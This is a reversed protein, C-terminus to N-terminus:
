QCLERIKDEYIKIVNGRQYNNSVFERGFLGMQYIDKESCECAKELALILSDKDNSKVGFGTKGEILLEKCGPNDNTTIIPTQCALSEILVNSIGEHYFSPSVIFSHECYISRMDNARNLIRIREGYDKRLDYLKSDKLDKNDILFTFSAKKYKNLITPLCELLLDFGKQKLPRSAFLFSQEKKHGDFYFKQINVGSGPIIKFDNISINNSKFTSLADENQFFVCNVNKFSKKYLSVGIKNLLGKKNFVTGLGTINTIIKTKKANLGCYINPKITFSLIIDPKIFKIIRKYKKILIFNKFPNKNKLNMKFDLITLKNNYEEVIRPTSQICLFVEHEDLVLSDLLEKRFNFLTDEFPEVFLIRM